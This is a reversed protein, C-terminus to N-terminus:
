ALHTEEAAPRSLGHDVSLRMASQHDPPLGVVVASNPPLGAPEESGPSLRVAGGRWATQFESRSMRTLQFASSDVIDVGTADAGTVVLWHGEPFRANRIDVLVPHQSAAQALQDYSLSRDDAQLGFKRATAALAPRSVLGQAVTIGHARELVRVVDGVKVNKGTSRLVACLAAASCSSGGWRRAEAPTAYEASDAQRIPKVPARSEGPPVLNPQADAFRLPKSSALSDGPSAVNSHANAERNLKM